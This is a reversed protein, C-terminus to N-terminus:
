KRAVPKPSPWSIHFPCAGDHAEDRWCEPWRWFYLRSGDAWDWWTSRRSRDLCEKIARSDKLYEEKSVDKKRIDLYVHSEHWLQSGWLRHLFRRLTERAEEIGPGEGGVAWLSKDVGAEDSKTAVSVEIQSHPEWVWRFYSLRYVGTDGIQDQVNTQLILKALQSMAPELSSRQSRSSERAPSWWKTARILSEIHFRLPLPSGANWTWINKILEAAWVGPIDFLQGAKKPTLHCHILEGKTFVSPVSILVPWVPPPWPVPDNSSLSWWPNSARLQKAHKGRPINTALEVFKDTPRKPYAGQKM